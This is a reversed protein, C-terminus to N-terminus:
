HQARRGPAATASGPNTPRAATASGTPAYRETDVLANYVGRLADARVERSLQSALRVENAAVVDARVAGGRELAYLGWGAQDLSMWRKFKARDEASLRAMVKANRGELDASVRLADAALREEKGSEDHRLTVHDGEVNVVHVHGKHEGDNLMFSAGVKVLDDEHAVHGQGSTVKYYYRFRPKGTRPDVGAPVKKLYKHGAGKALGLLREYLFRPIPILM